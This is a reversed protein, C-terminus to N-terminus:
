KNSLLKRVKKQLTRIESEAEKRRNAGISQLAHMRMEFADKLVKLLGARRQTAIYKAFLSRMSPHTNIKMKLDTVRGKKEKTYKEFLEERLCHQKFKLRKARHYEEEALTAYYAFLGPQKKMETDLDDTIALDPEPLIETEIGRFNKVSFRVPYVHKGM